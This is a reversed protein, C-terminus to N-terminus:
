LKRMIPMELDNRWSELGKIHARSDVIRRIFDANRKFLEFYSPDHAVHEFFIKFHEHILKSFSDASERRKHQIPISKEKKLELLERFLSEKDAFHNYFTGVGLGGRNVIDRITV